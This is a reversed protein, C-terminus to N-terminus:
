GFYGKDNKQGKSDWNKKLIQVIEEIEEKVKQWDKYIRVVFEAEKKENYINDRSIVEIELGALKKYLDDILTKENLNLGKVAAFFFMPGNAPNLLLETFRMYALVKDMITKRLERLLFDTEKESVREIDFEENLKNFSPLSYKKEIKKYQKKLDELDSKEKM